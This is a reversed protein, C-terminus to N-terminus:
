IYTSLSILISKTGAGIPVSAIKVMWRYRSIRAQKERNFMKKEVAFKETVDPSMKRGSMEGALVCTEGM